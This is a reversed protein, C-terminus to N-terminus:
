HIRGFVSELRQLSLVVEGESKKVVATDRFDLRYAIADM